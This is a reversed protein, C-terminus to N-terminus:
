PKTKTGSLRVRQDLHKEEWQYTDQLTLEMQGASISGSGTTRHGDSWRVPDLVFYGTTTISGTAAFSLKSGNAPVVQIYVLAGHGRGSVHHAETRVLSFSGTYNAQSAGERGGKGTLRYIGDPVSLPTDDSVGALRVLDRGTAMALQMGLPALLMTDTAVYGGEMTRDIQAAVRGGPLVALPSNLAYFTDHTVVWSRNSEVRAWGLLRYGADEEVVLARGILRQGTPFDRDSVLSYSGTPDQVPVYSVKTGGNARLPAVAAPTVDLTAMLTGVHRAPVALSVTELGNTTRMGIGVMRGARNLLPYGATSPSEGSSLQLLGVGDIRPKAAVRGGHRMTEGWDPDVVFLEEGLSPEGTGDFSLTPLGVAPIRLLALDRREDSAVLAVDSYREGTILRVELAAAGRVLHNSTVILGDHAIIVGSGDRFASGALNLARIRVIAALTPSGEEPSRAASDQPHLARPTLPIAVFLWGVISLRSFLRHLTSM